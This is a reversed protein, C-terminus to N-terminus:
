TNGMNFFLDETNNHVIAGCYTNQMQMRDLEHKYYTTTFLKRTPQQLRHPKRTLTQKEDEQLNTRKVM